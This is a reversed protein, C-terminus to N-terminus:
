QDGPRDLDRQMAALKMLINDLKRDMVVTQNSVAKTVL